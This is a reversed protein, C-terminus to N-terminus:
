LIHRKLKSQEKDMIATTKLSKSQKIHRPHVRSPQLARFFRIYSNSSAIASLLGLEVFKGLADMVRYIYACSFAHVLENLFM